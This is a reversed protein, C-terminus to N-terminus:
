PACAAPKGPTGRDGASGSWAASEACWNGPGAPATLVRRSLSAGQPITWGAGADYSVRDVLKMADDYVVIQDTANALYFGSGYAYHVKVGGNILPDKTNGLVLFGGANITVPGKIVHINSKDDKITWGDLNVPQAGANHLEFWEGKSDLVAQPNAMIESVVVQAASPPAVGDFTLGGDDGPASFTGAEAGVRADQGVLHASDDQQGIPPLRKGTACGGALCACTAVVLTALTHHRIM